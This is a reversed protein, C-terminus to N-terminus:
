SGYGWISGSPPELPAWEKPGQLPVPPELRSYQWLPLSPPLPLDCDAPPRSIDGGGGGMKLQSLSSAPPSVWAGEAWRVGPGWCRGNKDWHRLSACSNGAWGSGGALLLKQDIFWEEEWERRLVRAPVGRVM